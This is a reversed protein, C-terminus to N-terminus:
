RSIVPYTSGSRRPQIPAARVCNRGAQKAAQLAADADAM